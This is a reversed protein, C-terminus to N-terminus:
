KEALGKSNRVSKEHKEGEKESEKSPIYLEIKRQSRHFRVFDLLFQSLPGDNVGVLAVIAPPVALVAVLIIRVQISAPIQLVLYGIVTLLVAAELVNRVRFTGNLVTGADVFNNPIYFVEPEDLNRNRKGM